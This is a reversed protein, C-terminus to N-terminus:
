PIPNLRGLSSLSSVRACCGMESALMGCRFDENIDRIVILIAAFTTFGYITANAAVFSLGQPVRPLIPKQM